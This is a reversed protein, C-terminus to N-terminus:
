CDSGEESQASEPQRTTAAVDTMLLTRGDQKSAQKSARVV